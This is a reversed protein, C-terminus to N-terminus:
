REFFWALFGRGGPRPGEALYTVEAGILRELEGRDLFVGHCGGCEHVIVGNREYSRMAEGCRICGQEPLDLM